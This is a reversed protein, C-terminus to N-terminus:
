ILSSGRFQVDNGLRSLYIQSKILIKVCHSIIYYIKCVSLVCPVTIM